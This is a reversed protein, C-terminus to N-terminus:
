GIYLPSVGEEVSTAQLSFCYAKLSTVEVDLQEYAEQGQKWLNPFSRVLLFTFLWISEVRTDM